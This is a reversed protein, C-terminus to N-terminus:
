GVKADELELFNRTTLGELRVKAAKPSGKRARAVEADAGM